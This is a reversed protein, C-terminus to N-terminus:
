AESQGWNLCFGPGHSSEGGPVEATHGWAHQTIELAQLCYVLM